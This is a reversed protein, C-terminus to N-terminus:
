FLQNLARAAVSKKTSENLKDPDIPWILEPKGYPLADGPQRLNGKLFATVMKTQVLVVEPLFL